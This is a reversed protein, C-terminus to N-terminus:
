YIVRDRIHRFVGNIGDYIEGITKRERDILQTESSRCYYIIFDIQIFASVPKTIDHSFEAKYEVRDSGRNFILEELYGHTKTEIVIDDIIINEKGPSFSYSLKETKIKDFVKYTIWAISGIATAGFIVWGVIPLWAVSAAASAATAVDVAAAM